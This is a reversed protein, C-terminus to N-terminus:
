TLKRAECFIYKIAVLTLLCPLGAHNRRSAINNNTNSMIHKITSQTITSRSVLCGPGTSKQCAQLVIKGPPRGRLFTYAYDSLKEPKM